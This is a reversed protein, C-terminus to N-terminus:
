PLPVSLVMLRFEADEPLENVYADSLEENQTKEGGLRIARQLLKHAEDKRGLLFSIYAQNGLKTPDDPDTKLSKIIYDQARNLQLVAAEEDGNLRSAKALILLNFAMGNFTGSVIDMLMPDSATGYTEIIENCVALSEEIQNTAGLANAKNFRAKAVIGSLEPDTSNKFTSILQDYLLIAEDDRNLKELRYAKSFIALATENQLKSTLGYQDIVLDYLRLEEDYRGLNAVNAGKRLTARAVRSQLETQQVAGYRQEIQDFIVIAAEINTQELTAAKNFLADAVELQVELEDSDGFREIVENYAAIEEETRKLMGLSIGKFALAKAAEAKTM